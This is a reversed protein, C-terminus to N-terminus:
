HKGKPTLRDRMITYGMSRLLGIAAKTQALTPTASLAKIKANMGDFAVAVANEFPAGYHDCGPGARVIGCHECLRELHAKM